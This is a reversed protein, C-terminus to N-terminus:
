KWTKDHDTQSLYGALDLAFYGWSDANDITKAYPFTDSTPKLGASDYRHDRTKLEHHSLEHIITEACLWQKAGNGTVRTFAGELYVVPFGGGEGGRIAAGFYKDRQARWNAYDTFVLTASNCAVAIDRFGTTLKTVADRLQDDGCKEDLFWHKVKAEADKTTIKARVDESVKLAVGLAASMWKMQEETFIEEDNSLKTKIATADGTLEDFIWTSHATPPAYVWVDQGGKESIRYLHRVMKLAAARDATSGAPKGSDAAAFIVAGSTEKGTKTHEAIRTRVLDPSSAAAKTFGTDGFLTKLSCRTTLFKQWDAEFEHKEAIDKAKKYVETFKKM